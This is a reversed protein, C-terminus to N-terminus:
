LYQKLTHIENVNEEFQGSDLMIQILRELTYYLNQYKSQLNGLDQSLDRKDYKLQQIETQLAHFEWKDVKGSLKSEVEWNNM